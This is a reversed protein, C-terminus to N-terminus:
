RPLFDVFGVFDLKGVDVSQNRLIAYAVTIHFFANPVLIQRLYVDVKMDRGWAKVIRNGAAQLKEEPINEVFAATKRIRERLPGSVSKAVQATISFGHELGSCCRARFTAKEPGRKSM